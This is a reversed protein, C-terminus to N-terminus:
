ETRIPKICFFLLLLFCFDAPSSNLTRVLWSMHQPYEFSGDQHSSGKLVWVYTLVSPHYFVNVIKRVIKEGVFSHKLMWCLLMIHYEYTMILIQM